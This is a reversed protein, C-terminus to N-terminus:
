RGDEQPQPLGPSPESWVWGGWSPLYLMSKDQLEVVLLMQNTSGGGVACIPYSGPKTPKERTWHGGLFKEWKAKLEADMTAEM